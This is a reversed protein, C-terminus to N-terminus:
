EIRYGHTPLRELPKTDIIGLIQQLKVLNTYSDVYSAVPLAYLSCHVYM